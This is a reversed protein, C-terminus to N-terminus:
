RSQEKHRSNFLYFLGFQIVGNRSSSATSETVDSVGINYRADLGVGSKSLYSLGLPVSFDITKFADSVDYNTSGVKFTATTLIGLQPGGQLRFGDGFNYQLLVPINVYGLTYRADNDYKAGQMSYMIEPQISFAPTFHAHMLGGAHLGARFSGNTNTLNALNLGAKIGFVPKQAAAIACVALAAAFLSIKKM